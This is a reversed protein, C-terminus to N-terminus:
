SETRETLPPFYARAHPPEICVFSPASEPAPLYCRITGRWVVSGDDLVTFRAGRRLSIVHDFRDAVAQDAVAQTLAAVSWACNRHRGRAM